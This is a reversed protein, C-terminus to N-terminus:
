STYGSKVILFSGALYNGTENNTITITEIADTTNRWVGSVVKQDPTAGAGVEQTLIGNVVKRQTAVNVIHSTLFHGKNVAVQQLRIQNESTGGALAGGNTVFGYSYNNGSNDSNFRMDMDNDGSFFTCVIVELLTRAPLGSVELTDGDTALIDVGLIEGATFQSINTKLTDLTFKKYEDSSGDQLLLLDSDALTTQENYEKIQPM